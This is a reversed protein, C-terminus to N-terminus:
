GKEADCWNAYYRRVMEARQRNGAGKRDCTQWGMIIIAAVDRGLLHVSGHSNLLISQTNHDLSFRVYSLRWLAAADAVEDGL